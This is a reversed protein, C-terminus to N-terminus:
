YAISFPFLFIGSSICSMVNDSTYFKSSFKLFTM